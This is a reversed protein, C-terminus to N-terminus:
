FSFSKILNIEVINETYYQDLFLFDDFNFVRYTIEAKTAGKFRYSGTFMLNINETDLDLKSRFYTLGFGGTLNRYERSNINLNVQQSEFVFDEGANEYDGKSYSYGGSVDFYELDKFSGQAFYRVFDAESDLQNNKRVRNEIGIRLSGIDPKEYKGRVKFRTRDEDGVLRAGEDVEESRVGLITNLEFGEHPNIRGSLYYSDAKVVDEYDDNIDYQYGATFSFKGPHNYSVYILHALNDTEVFDSDSGARTFYSVYTATFDRLLRTTVVGKATTAELKFGTADNETEFKALSGSLTLWEYDPVPFHGFLKIKKRTRDYSEDLNDTYSITNYEAQFMRGLYKIRVGVGYKSRDYDIGRSVAPVAPDFLDAVDGSVTNFSGLAYVKLYRSPYFWINAGTLDRRTQSDGEFDYIRRYRNTNVDAGFRGSKEFGFSLNRNDLNINRLDSRIRFGNEFRYHFNEVSVSAGDFYNFSSHSLSRNGEEDIYIYGVKLDGSGSQALAVSLVIPLILLASLTNNLKRM